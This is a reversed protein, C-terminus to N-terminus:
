KIFELCKKICIEMFNYLIFIVLSFYLINYLKYVSKKTLLFVLSSLHCLALYVIVLKDNAKLDASHFFDSPFFIINIVLLQLACANM